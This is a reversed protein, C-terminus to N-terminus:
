AISANRWGFITINKPAQVLGGLKAITSSYQELPDRQYTIYFKSICKLQSSLLFIHKSAALPTKYKCENLGGMTCRSKFLKFKSNSSAKRVLNASKPHVLVM